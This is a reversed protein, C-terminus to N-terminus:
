AFSPLSARLMQYTVPRTSARAPRLIQGSITIATPLGALGAVAVQTKVALWLAVAGYAVTVYEVFWADYVFM